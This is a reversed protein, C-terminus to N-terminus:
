PHTILWDLDVAPWLDRALNCIGNIYLQYRRILEVAAPREMSKWGSFEGSESLAASYGSLVDNLLTMITKRQKEYLPYLVVSDMGWNLASMVHIWWQVAPLVSELYTGEELMESYKNLNKGESIENLDNRSWWYYLPGSIKECRSLLEVGLPIASLLMARVASSNPELSMMVKGNQGIPGNQQKTPLM